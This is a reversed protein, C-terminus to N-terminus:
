RNKPVNYKIEGTGNCELCDVLGGGECLPCTEMGEGNCKSCSFNGAQGECNACAIKGNNCTCPVSKLGNCEQCVVIVYGNGAELIDSIKYRPIPKSGCSGFLIAAFIMFGILKKM